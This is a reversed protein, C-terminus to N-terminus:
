VRMGLSRYYGRYYSAKAWYLPRTVMSVAVQSLGGQFQAMLDSLLAPPPNVQPGGTRWGEEWYGQDEGPIFKFYAFKGLERVNLPAGIPASLMAQRSTGRSLLGLLMASTSNLVENTLGAVRKNCRTVEKQLYELDVRQKVLRAQQDAIVEDLDHVMTEIREIEFGTPVSDHVTDGAMRAGTRVYSSLPGWGALVVGTLVVGGTILLTTKILGM